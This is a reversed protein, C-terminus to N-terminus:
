NLERFMEYLAGLSMRCDNLARHAALRPVPHGVGLEKKIEFYNSTDFMRYHLIRELNLMHIKIYSRDFSISNGSLRLGSVNDGFVEKMTRIIRSEAEQLTVVFEGGSDIEQILGNSTHMRRAFDNMPLQSAPKNNKILYNGDKLIQFKGKSINLAIFGVELIYNSEPEIGTTEFDLMLINLSM